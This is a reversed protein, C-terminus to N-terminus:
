SHKLVGLILHDVALNTDGKSKQLYWARNICCRIEINPPISDPAPYQSPLKKLAQRLVGQVAEMTEEKATTASSIAQHLIGGEDKTLVIALHVPTYKAYGSETAIERATALAENTKHTFKEPNM